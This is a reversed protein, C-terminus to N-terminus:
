INDGISLNSGFSFRNQLIRNQAFCSITPLLTSPVHILNEFLRAVRRKQLFLHFKLLHEMNEFNKSYRKNNPECNAMKANINKSKGLRKLSRRNRACITQRKNRWCYEM